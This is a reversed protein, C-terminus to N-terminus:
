LWQKGLGKQFSQAQFSGDQLREEVSMPGTMAASQVKFPGDHRELTKLLGM